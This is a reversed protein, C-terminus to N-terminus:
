VNTKKVPTIILAARWAASGDAAEHVQLESQFMRSKAIRESGVFVLTIKGRKKRM